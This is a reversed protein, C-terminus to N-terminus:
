KDLTTVTAKVRLRGDKGMKVTTKRNKNEQKDQEENEDSWKQWHDVNSWAFVAADSKDEFRAWATVVSNNEKDTVVKATISFNGEINNLTELMSAWQDTAINPSRFLYGTTLKARNNKLPNNELYEALKINYSGDHTSLTITTGLSSTDAKLKLVKSPM